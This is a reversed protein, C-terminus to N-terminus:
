YMFRSFETTWSLCSIVRFPNLLCLREAAARLINMYIGCNKAVGMPHIATGFYGKSQNRAKRTKALQAFYTWGQKVWKTSSFTATKLIIVREKEVAGCAGPRPM